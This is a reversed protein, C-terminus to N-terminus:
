RQAARLGSLREQIVEVQSELDALTGVLREFEHQELGAVGLDAALEDREGVLRVIRKLVGAAEQVSRQEESKEPRGRAQGAETLLQSENWGQAESQDLLARQREWGLGQVTRFHTYRLRPWGEFGGFREEQEALRVCRFLHSKSWSEGLARMQAVLGDLAGDGENRTNWLEFSGEYARDIIARGAALNLELRSRRTLAVLEQALEKLLEESPRPQTTQQTTETM